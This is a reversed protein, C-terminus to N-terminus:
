NTTEVGKFFLLWFLFRGWIPTFIFFIQFWWRTETKQQNNKNGTGYWTKKIVYNKARKSVVRIEHSLCLGTAPSRPYFKSGPHHHQHVRCHLCFRRNWSLRDCRCHFEMSNSLGWKLSELIELKWIFYKSKLIRVMWKTTLITLTM